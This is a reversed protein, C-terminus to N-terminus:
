CFKSVFYLSAINVLFLLPIGFKFKNKSTKHRIPAQMAMYIGPSGFFFALLLLTNEPIRHGERKSQYKDYCMVLYSVSNLVLTFGILIKQHETM